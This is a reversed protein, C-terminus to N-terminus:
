PRTTAAAPHPRSCRPRVDQRRRRAARSRDEVDAAQRQGAQSLRGAVRLHRRASRGQGRLAHALAYLTSNIDAPKISRLLPFLNAMISQLEVNTTVRSAPIVAGDKLKAAGAVHGGEPPVLQVYKRGFLTTPMIEVAVDAPINRAAEPRLSLTIKAQKGNSEIKQINGVLAGHMRVDGFKALQLGTREAMVTVETTKTFQKNYLAICLWIM